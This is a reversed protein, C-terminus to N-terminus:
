SFLLYFNLFTIIIGIIGITINTSIKNKYKGMIEKRGTLYLQAGITLPLQFCLIAQSFILAKLTNKVFIICLIGGVISVIIGFKTYSEKLNYPRKYIGSSITGGAMGATISSSFGSFFLGLAFILGAGKGLLPGLLNHAQALETVDINKEFFCSVSLIIMASNIVWGIGMSFLIDVFEYKLQKKIVEPEELNWQRSQIIESHLFLNHPMVIAGFIGMAVLVNNGNLSPVFSNVVVEHWKVDVLSLEYIFSFGIISVFGVIFKELKKYSNTFIMLLSLIGVIIGGYTLPINFIMNMAIAGGLIEAFAVSINALLASYLIINGIKKSINERVSESLCKGTVIGLHAVNHQLVILTFTGLTIVWLLKYGFESGGAINSAWNGPDIFGVTVLLGPGIYKLIGWNSKM